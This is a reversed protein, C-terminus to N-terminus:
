GVNLDKLLDLFQGKKKFNKNKEAKLIVHQVWYRLESLYDGKPPHMREVRKIWSQASRGLQTNALKM